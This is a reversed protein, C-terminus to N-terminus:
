SVAVGCMVMRVMMRISFNTEMIVVAPMLGWLGDVPVSMPQELLVSIADHRCVWPRCVPGNPIRIWRVVVIYNPAFPDNVMILGNENYGTLVIFHQGDTFLSQGEMLAIVVKGERLAEIAKHFNEMKEWPLQM